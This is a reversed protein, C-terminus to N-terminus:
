GPSMCSRQKKSHKLYTRFHENMSEFLMSDLNYLPTPQMVKRCHRQSLIYISQEIDKIARQWRLSAVPHFHPFGWGTGIISFNEKAMAEIKDAMVNSAGTIISAGCAAMDGVRLLPRGGVMVTVSGAVFPTTTPHPTAPTPWLQVFM